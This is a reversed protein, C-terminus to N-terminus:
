HHLFSTRQDYDLPLVLRDDNRSRLGHGRLGADPVECSAHLVTSFVVHAWHFVGVHLERLAYRFNSAM